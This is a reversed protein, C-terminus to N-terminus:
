DDYDNNIVGFCFMLDYSQTGDMVFCAYNNNDININVNINVSINININFIL